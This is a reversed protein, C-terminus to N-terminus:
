AQKEAELAFTDPSLSTLLDQIKNIINALEDHTLAQCNNSQALFLLLGKVENWTALDHVNNVIGTISFTLVYAEESAVENNSEATVIDETSELAVVETAPTTEVSETETTVIETNEPMAESDTSVTEEAVVEASSAQMAEPTTTETSKTTSEEPAVVTHTDIAATTVENEVIAEVIAEELVQAIPENQATATVFLNLGSTLAEQLEKIFVLLSQYVTPNAGRHTVDNIRTHLQKIDDLHAADKAQVTYTFTCVQPTFTTETSVTDEANIASFVFLTACLLINKNM